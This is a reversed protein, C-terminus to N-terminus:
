TDDGKKPMGKSRILSCGLPEDRECAQSWLRFAHDVDPDGGQGDHILLGLRSCAFMDDMSCARQYLDRARDTQQSDEHLMALATCGRTNQGNCAKQYMEVAVGLSANPAVGAEHMMGITVCASLDNSACAAQKKTFSESAFAAGNIQGCALLVALCTFKKMMM